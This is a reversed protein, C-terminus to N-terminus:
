LCACTRVYNLCPLFLDATLQPHARLLLVVQWEILYRVSLQNDFQLASLLQETVLGATVQFVNLQICAMFYTYLATTEGFEFSHHLTCKLQFLGSECAGRGGGGEVGVGM